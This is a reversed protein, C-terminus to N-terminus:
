WSELKFRGARSEFRRGCLNSALVRVVIGGLGGERMRFSFETIYVLM